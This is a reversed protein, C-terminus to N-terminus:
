LKKSEFFEYVKQFLTRKRINSFDTYEYIRIAYKLANLDGRRAMDLLRDEMEATAGVPPKYPTGREVCINRLKAILEDETAPRKLVAMEMNFERELRDEMSKSIVHSSDRLRKYADEFVLLVPQPFEISSGGLLDLHHLLQDYEGRVAMRYHVYNLFKEANNRQRFAGSQRNLISLVEEKTGSRSRVARASEGSPVEEDMTSRKHSGSAKIALHRAPKNVSHDAESVVEAELLRAVADWALKQFDCKSIDNMRVARLVAVFSDLERGDNRAYHVASDIITNKTEASVPKGSENAFENVSEFLERLRQPPTSSM